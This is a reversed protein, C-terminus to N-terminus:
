NKKCGDRSRFYLKRLKENERLKALARNVRMRLTSENRCGEMKAATTIPYGELWVLQLARKEISPLADIAERLADIVPSECLGLSREVTEPDAFCPLSDIVGEGAENLFGDLSLVPKRKHPKPKMGLALAEADEEAEETKEADTKPTLCNRLNSEVCRNHARNLADVHEQTVGDRGAIVTFQEGNVYTYVHTTMGKVNVKHFDHYSARHGGIMGLPTRYEESWDEVQVAQELENDRKSM